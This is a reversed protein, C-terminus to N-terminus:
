RCRTRTPPCRCTSNGIGTRARRSRSRRRPRTSPTPRSSHRASPTTSSRARLTPTSTPPRSPSRPSRTSTTPRKATSRPTRPTKTSPSLTQSSPKGDAPVQTTVMPIGVSPAARGSTSTCSAGRRSSSLTGRTSVGRPACSCRSSRTPPLCRRRTRQRTSTDCRTLGHVRAPDLLCRVDAIVPDESTTTNYKVMDIVALPKDNRTNVADYAKDYSYITGHM